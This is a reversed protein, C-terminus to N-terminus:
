GSPQEYEGNYRVGLCDNLRNLLATLGILFTLEVIEGDTFRRKM